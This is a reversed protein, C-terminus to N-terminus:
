HIPGQQGAGKTPMQMQGQVPAYLSLMKQMDQPALQPVQYYGHKNQYVFVEYAMEIYHPIQDALVRRCVPNTVEPAAMALASTGSKLLGLMFSSICADDIQQPSMKPKKPQTEKLGYVFQRNEKMMYTATEQSPKQGTRFCEATLNYQSLIFQHQRDLIDMLERDQVHQRFMMYQELIGIMGSLVEHMDFVEHGGHNMHQMGENGQNIQMQDQNQQDM